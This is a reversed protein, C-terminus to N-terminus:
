AGTMNHTIAFNTFTDEEVEGQNKFAPAEKLKASLMSVDQEAYKLIDAVRKATIKDALARWETVHKMVKVFDDKESGNDSLHLCWRVHDEVEAKDHLNAIAKRYRHIVTNIMM